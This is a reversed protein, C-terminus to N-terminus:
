LDINAFYARLAGHYRPDELLFADHGGPADIELYSVIRRNDLSRAARDRALAGAPLALRLQVVGRPLRGQRPALAASLDGGFDGRPISTTSRRPSACTPTPTSTPRLVQRGPLASLVRDRLRRRLRLRPEGPAARPRVERGDGRGLPLHHPRDHARHAARPHAGRGERLLARRPLGPRDHDGPAGGRQLRHEAAHAAARGRHRALPPHARPLLADMAAGAHRRPLRRDGRRLARHRPPRRPAGAGRGLRGGDGGPLGRGLAQRDAPNSRRRGPRASAAGSTIPASSSSASAYRAAQRPRGPQGVLRRQRPRERLLRCRSAVREARPVGAGRQFAGANLTGYTEYAIDYSPLEAGSRLRIPADFHANHALVAGVSSPDHPANM